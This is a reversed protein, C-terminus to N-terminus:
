SKSDGSSELCITSLRVARVQKHPGAANSRRVGRGMKDDNNRRVGKNKKDDRSRRVDRNKKDGKNKRGDNNRGEVRNSQEKAHKM